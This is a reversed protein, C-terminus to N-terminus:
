DRLLEHTRIGDGAGIKDTFNLPYKKKLHNINQSLSSYVDGEFNTDDVYKSVLIM